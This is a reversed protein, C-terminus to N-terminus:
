EKDGNLFRKLNWYPSALIDGWGESVVDKDFAIKPSGELSIRGNIHVDSFSNRELRMEGEIDHNSFEGSSVVLKYHDYEVVIDAEETNFDAHKRSEEVMTNPNRFRKRNWPSDGEPMIDDLKRPSSDLYDNSPDLYGNNHLSKIWEFAREVERKASYNKGEDSTLNSIYGARDLALLHGAEGSIDDLLSGLTGRLTMNDLNMGSWGRSRKFGQVNEPYEDLTAEFEMEAWNIREGLTNIQEPSQDLGDLDYQGAKPADLTMEPDLSAYRLLLHQLGKARKAVYDETLEDLSKTYIDM